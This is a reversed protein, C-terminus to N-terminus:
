EEYVREESGDLSKLEIMIALVDRLRDIIVLKSFFDIRCFLFRRLVFKSFFDCSYLLSQPASTQKPMRIRSDPFTNM